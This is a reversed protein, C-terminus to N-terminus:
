RAQGWERAVSGGGNFTGNDHRGSANARLGAVRDGSRRLKRAHSTTGVDMLRTRLGAHELERLATLLAEADGRMTSIGVCWAPRDRSAVGRVLAGVPERELSARTAREKLEFLSALTSDDGAIRRAVASQGRIEQLSAPWLWRRWVDPAVVVHACAGLARRVLDDGALVPAVDGHLRTGGYTVFAARHSLVAVTLAASLLEYVLRDAEEANGASLNVVVVGPPRAGDEFTKVVPSRLKATHKWDISMLSDGPVYQRSAVYEVGTSSSLLHSVESSLLSQWEGAAGRHELYEMAAWRAIRARPIVNLRAVELRQVVRVLGLADSGVARMEITAPGGLAPVYSVVPAADHGPTFWPPGHLKAGGTAALAVAGRTRARAFRVDIGLDMRTGARVALERTDVVLPARGLRLYGVGAGALLAVGLAVAASAVVMASAVVALAMVAALSALIARCLPSLSPGFAGELELMPGAVGALGHAVAVVVPLGALLAWATSVFSAAFLPLALACSLSAVLFGPWWRALFAALYVAVLIVSAATAPAGSALSLGVLAAPPYLLLLRMVSHRM